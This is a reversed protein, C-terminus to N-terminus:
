LFCDPTHQTSPHPIPHTNDCWRPTAAVPDTRYELRDLDTRRLLVPPQWSAARTHTDFYYDRSMCLFIILYHRHHCIICVYPLPPPLPINPYSHYFVFVFVQDILAICYILFTPLIFLTLSIYKISRCPPWRGANPDFIRVTRLAYYASLVRRVAHGRCVSQVLVAAAQHQHQPLPPPPRRPQPPHTTTSPESISSQRSISSSEIDIVSNNDMTEAYNNNNADVTPTPLALALALNSQQDLRKQKLDKEVVAWSQLLLEQAKKQKDRNMVQM